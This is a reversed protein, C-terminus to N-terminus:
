KKINGDSCYVTYLEIGADWDQMKAIANWQSKTGGFTIRAMGNCNLFAEAGFMQMGSPITINSLEYCHAFMGKSLRTAGSRVTVSRLASCHAFAYEGWQTVFAPIIM